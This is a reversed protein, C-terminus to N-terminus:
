VKAEAVFYPKTKISKRASADDVIPSVSIECIPSWNLMWSNLLEHDSCEAVCVGGAGGLHHWRGVMRIGEGADVLDDDPTMKGFTNWCEVRKETPISWSVLFLM